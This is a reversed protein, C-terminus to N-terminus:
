GNIETCEMRETEKFKDMKLVKSRGNEVRTTAV